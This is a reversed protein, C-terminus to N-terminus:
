VRKRKRNTTKAFEMMVEKTVEASEALKAYSSSNLVKEGNDVIFNIVFKKLDLCLKCDAYLLEDVANDVTLKLKKICWAEAEMKLAVFGYKGSAELIEKSRETWKDPLITEGYAHKLMLEFTEPEVNQIPMPLDKNFQSALEYLEPVRVKLICKQAYFVEKEVKFSIDATEQDNILKTFENGLVPQHPPSHHIYFEDDPRVYVRFTLTGDALVNSELIDSRKCITGGCHNDESTLGFSVYGKKKKYIEGNSKVISIGYNVKVPTPSKNILYITMEEPHKHTRKTDGGPYLSLCYDVGGLTFNPSLVEVDKQIPLQPFNHYHIPLTEIVPFDTAPKGVHIERATSM